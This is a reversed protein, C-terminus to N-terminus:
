MSVVNLVDALSRTRELRSCSRVFGPDARPSAGSQVELVFRPLAEAIARADDLPAHTPLGARMLVGATDGREDTLSMVPRGARLYEYVKAPIQRNCNAAQLVLLADASMMEALAARYPLPPALTVLDEVGHTRALGALLADNAGARFRLEFTAAALTGARKCVGLAAFLATPDREEAYVIGSHLLVFREGERAAPALGAFADEDYGNEILSWRARPLQPYRSQSEEIAGPTTFVARAARRVIKADLRQWHARLREDAPYDDQALPDRFDAIWPLGTFRQLALAIAHASAIPFTSFLASPKHKRALLLGAIVAGPIWTSWRDPTAAFGPYAGRLALHRAADLAFARTVPVGAVEDILDDSVSEYARPSVTLVIPRWGFEPLYRCFRLTRQIGSSGRLPPFHYAVILVSRV